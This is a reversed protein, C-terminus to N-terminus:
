NILGDKITWHGKHWPKVNWANLSNGESLPEFGASRLQDPSMRGPIKDEAVISATSCALVVTLLLAVRYYRQM